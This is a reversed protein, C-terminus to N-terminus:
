QKAAAAAAAAYSSTFVKKVTSQDIKPIIPKTIPQTKKMEASMMPTMM